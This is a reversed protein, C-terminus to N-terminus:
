VRGKLYAERKKKPFKEIAYRLATRPMTAGHKALFREEDAFSRKGVERLTWGVAKHILDHSDHLLIEAIALADDHHGKKIYHHTALIAIRKRWLNRSRALAYLLTKPKDELYAGLIGPASFDILDWNNVYAFNRRYLAVIAKKVKSDGRSFQGQAIILAVAREEHVPSCLLKQLDTAPLDAFKKAVLNEQPVTIGLFIDGEGYEGKGTKFYRSLLAAKGLDAFVRM